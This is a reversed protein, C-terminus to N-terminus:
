ADKVMQTATELMRIALENRSGILNFAADESLVGCKTDEPLMGADAANVDQYWEESGYYARLKLYAARNQELRDLANEVTELIRATDDLINEMMDIRTKQEM